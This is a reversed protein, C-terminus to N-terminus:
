RMVEMPLTAIWITSGFRLAKAVFFILGPHDAPFPAPVRKLEPDSIRMGMGMGGLSATVKQLEVGKKSDILNRFDELDAKEYGFVGAGLMLHDQELSFFYGPAASGQGSTFSIRIHTNYPRKDKSFRVDRFIRFVKPSHFHRTEGELAASMTMAFFEAPEKIAREYDARNAQFWDRDNHNALRQLFANTDTTFHLM